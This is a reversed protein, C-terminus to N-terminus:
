VQPPQRLLSNHFQRLDIERYQRPTELAHLLADAQGLAICERYLFPHEPQRASDLTEMIVVCAEVAASIRDIEVAPLPANGIAAELDAHTLSWNRLDNLHTRKQELTKMAANTRALASPTLGHDRNVEDVMRQLVLNARTGDKARSELPDTLKCLTLLVDRLLVLRVISFFTPAWSHIAGAEAPDGVFLQRWQEWHLYLEAIKHRMVEYADRVPIQRMM